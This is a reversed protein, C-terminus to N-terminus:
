AAEASRRGQLVERVGAMIRKRDPFVHSEFAPRYLIPVQLACVRKVSTKLRAFTAGGEAFALSAVDRDHDIYSLRAALEHSLGRMAVLFRLRM